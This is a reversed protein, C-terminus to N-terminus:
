KGGGAAPLTITMKADTGWDVLNMETTVGSGESTTRVMGGRVSPKGEYKVDMNPDKKNMQSEDWYSRFPVQESVWVSSKSNYDKGQMTSTMDSDTRECSFSTGKVTLTDKAFKVTGRVKYDTNTAGATPMPEVKIEKGEKGAQGWYAKKVKRDSKDVAVLTVWDNGSTSMEVWVLNGEIKVCANKTRASQGKMEYQVWQGEKLSAVDWSSYSTDYVVPQNAPTGQLNSDNKSENDAQNIFSCGAFLLTSALIASKRM